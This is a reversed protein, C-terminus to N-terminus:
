LRLANGMERLGKGQARLRTGKDNM